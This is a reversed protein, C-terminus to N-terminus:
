CEYETVGLVVMESEVGGIVPGWAGWKVWLSEWKSGDGFEKQFLLFCLSYLLLIFCLPKIFCHGGIM